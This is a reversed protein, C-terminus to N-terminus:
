RPARVVAGPLRGAAAGAGPQAVLRDGPPARGPTHLVAAAAAVSELHNTGRFIEDILFLAPAGSEALALLERARRLEAIYLSEGGDLSDENQMSSYVALRPVDASDAYCFGFARASVLNLGMGRLLTSKGIANQGSIFAGRGDVGFSLPVAGGALPHLMGQLALARPAASGAWCFAPARAAAAGAGPGSGPRGAPYLQRASLAAARRVLQRTHFYRRVNGLLLWDDYEVLLTDIFPVYHLLSREIARTLRAAQAGGAACHRSQRCM